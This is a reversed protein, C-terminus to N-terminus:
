PQWDVHSGPGQRSSSRRQIPMSMYTSVTSGAMVRKVRLFATVCVTPNHPLFFSIRQQTSINIPNVRELEEWEQQQVKLKIVDLM